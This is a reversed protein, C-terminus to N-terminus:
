FKGKRKKLRVKERARRLGDSKKKEERANGQGLDCERDSM